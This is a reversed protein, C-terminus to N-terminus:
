EVVRVAEMYTEDAVGFKKVALSVDVDLREKSEGLGEVKSSDWFYGGIQGFHGRGRDKTVRGRAKVIEIIRERFGNGALTLRGEDLETIKDEIEASWGDFCKKVLSDYELTRPAMKGLKMEDSINGEGEKLDM